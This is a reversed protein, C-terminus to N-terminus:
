FHYLSLVFYVYGFGCFYVRYKVTCSCLLLGAHKYTPFYSELLLHVFPLAAYGDVQYLAVFILFLFQCICYSFIVATLSSFFNAYM